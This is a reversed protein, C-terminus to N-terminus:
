SYDRARARRQPAPDCCKHGSGARCRGRLSSTTQRRLRLRVSPLAACPTPTRRTQDYAPAAATRRAAWRRRRACVRSVRLVGGHPGGREASAAERGRALRSSSQVDVTAPRPLVIEKGSRLYAKGLELPDEKIPELKGDFLRNRKQTRVGDAVHRASVRAKVTRRACSKRRTPTESGQSSVGCM